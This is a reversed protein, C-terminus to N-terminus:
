REMWMGAHNSDVLFHLGSSSMKAVHLVSVPLIHEDL